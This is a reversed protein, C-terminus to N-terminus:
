KLYPSQEFSQNIGDVTREGNFDSNSSLLGRNVSVWIIPVDDPDFAGNVLQRLDLMDLVVTGVDYQQFSISPPYGCYYCPYGPGWWGGGWWGGGWWPYGPYVYGVTERRLIISPSIVVDVDPEPDVDNPVVIQVNRNSPTPDPALTESVIVVNSEGYLAVLNELTTNLIEDDVEGDYPLDNADDDKVQVVDWIIAASTPATSFDQESYFTSSTDLDSIPISDGPYCSNLIMAVLIVMISTKTLKIM